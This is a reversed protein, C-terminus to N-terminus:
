YLKILCLCPTTLFHSSTAATEMTPFSSTSNMLPSIIWLGQVKRQVGTCNLILIHGRQGMLALSIFGQAPYPVLAFSLFTWVFILCRSSPLMRGRACPIRDPLESRHFPLFHCPLNTAAAGSSPSARAASGPSFAGQSGYCPPLFLFLFLLHRCFDTEVHCQVLLALPKALATTIRCGHCVDKSANSAKTIIEITEKEESGEGKCWNVEM